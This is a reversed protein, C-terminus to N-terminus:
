TITGSVPPFPDLQLLNPPPRWFSCQGTLSVQPQRVEQGEAAPCEEYQSPPHMM